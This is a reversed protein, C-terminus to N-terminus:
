RWTRRWGAAGAGCACPRFRPGMMVRGLAVMGLRVRTMEPMEPGREPFDFAITTGHPYIYKNPKEIKEARVTHPLGLKLFRHITDLTHPGWDGFAGNGYDYWGRWNGPDYKRNYPRM